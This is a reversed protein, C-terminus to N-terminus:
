AFAEQLVTVLHPTWADRWAIWNHADRVVHLTAPYGQSELTAVCQRNNELNREVTGCTMVVPIPEHDGGAALDEVFREIREVPPESGPYEQPHFFSSSQLLLSGFADRRRHAHLLAVGGLSAGLGVRATRGPALGLVAGVAAPLEDALYDAFEPSASYHEDRRTPQCLVARMPPLAGCAVQVDLLHLLGSFRAFELGDLAVLVPLPQEPETGAASWVVTPQLDGLVTSPVDLEVVDGEDVEVELWPPPSYEPFEVVSRDGFAGPARRPNAPDLMTAHADGSVVDFRYELRDVEPRSLTGAFMGTATRHLEPGYRPDAVEQVVVVRDAAGAPDAFHFTVRDTAVLPPGPSAAAEADVGPPDDM